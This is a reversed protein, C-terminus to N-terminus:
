RIGERQAVSSAERAWVVLQFDADEYRAIAPLRLDELMQHVARTSLRRAQFSLTWHCAVLTGGPGLTEGCCQAVRAMDRSDLFYGLESLVILDFGGPPRPWEEPLAQRTIQVHAFERTRDRAAVVARDSFDSALLEDCRPALEHTLEGVGCAPEFALGYGARPLAALLIARKRAEYWRSRVGYPDASDAYMQEFAAQDM